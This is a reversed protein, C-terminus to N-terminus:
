SIKIKQKSFSPKLQRAESMASSSAHTGVQAFGASAGERLLRISLQYAEKGLSGEEGVATSADAGARESGSRSRSVSDTAAWVAPFSARLSSDEQFHFKAPPSPLEVGEFTRCNHRSLTLFSQLSAFASPAAFKERVDHQGAVIGDEDRRTPETRRRRSM